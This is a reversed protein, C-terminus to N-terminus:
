FYKRVWIAVERAVVSMIKEMNRSNLGMVELRARVYMAGVVCVM